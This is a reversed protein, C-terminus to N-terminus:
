ATVTPLLGLIRKVSNYSVKRRQSIHWPTVGEEFDQLVLRKKEAFERPLPQRAGPVVVPPVQETGLIECIEEDTRGNNRMLQAAFGRSVAGPNETVGNLAREFSVGGTREEMENLLDVLTALFTITDAGVGAKQQAFRVLPSDLWDEHVTIDRM